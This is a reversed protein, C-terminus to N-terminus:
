DLYGLEHLKERTEPGIESKELTEKVRSNEDEMMILLQLATRLKYHVEPDDTEEIVGELLAEITGITTTDM